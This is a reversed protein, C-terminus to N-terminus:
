PYMSVKVACLLGPQLNINISILPNRERIRLFPDTHGKKQAGLVTQTTRRAKPDLYGRFM